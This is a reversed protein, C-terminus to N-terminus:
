LNPLFINEGLPLDSNPLDNINILFKSFDEVSYEPYNEKILNYWTDGHKVLYLRGSTFTDHPISIVTNIQIENLNTSPNLLSLYKYGTKYNCTSEFERLINSITDGSKITYDITPLENIYSDISLIKISNTESIGNDEVESINDTIGDIFEEKLTDNQFLTEEDVIKPNNLQNDTYYSKTEENDKVENSNYNNNLTPVNKNITIFIQYCLFLTQFLILISLVIKEKNNKM